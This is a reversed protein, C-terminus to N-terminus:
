ASLRKRLFWGALAAGLLVVISGPEPVKAVRFGTGYYEDNPRDEYRVAASLWAADADFFGGRLGRGPDDPLDTLIAENWEWVNGGQDYTGYPSKSKEFKGAETTYYPPGLTFGNQYFNANNGPDPDAIANSPTEDTGTPFHWYNGTPGDNKHYAAKYWEDESPIVWTAGSKRAVAMLESQSTAGNLEYSGDETTLSGQDGTRQGNALWNCFRAADGWTVYNVPRNVYNNDVTYVYNGSDGSRQIKCGYQNDSMGQSYLNYTDTKAVANLFDTYQGATVESKGIQYTYPVAGVTVSPGSGVPGGGSLEGKNGPNGVTVLDINVAQASLATLAVIISVVTMIWPHQNLMIKM